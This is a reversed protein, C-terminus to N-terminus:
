VAVKAFDADAPDTWTWTISTSTRSAVQLNTVSAPPTVDQSPATGALVPILAAKWRAAMKKEGSTDPHVGDPQNDVAASYGTYQDVIIVRSQATSLSSLGAIAQNLAVVRRNAQTNAIPIIQAVMITMSPNRARLKGIIATIDAISQSVPTARIADGTGTHVLAVNPPAYAGLWGSLGGRIEVASYGNHAECDPDVGNPLAPTHVSGVFDVSYGLSALDQALYYRYSPHSGYGFDGGHTTSDGLPLVLVAASAAGCLMTAALLVALALRVGPLPRRLFSHFTSMAIVSSDCSFAAHANVMTM